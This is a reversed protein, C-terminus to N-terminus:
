IGQPVVERVNINIDLYVDCRENCNSCLPQETENSYLDNTNKHKCVPCEWDFLQNLRSMGDFEMRM